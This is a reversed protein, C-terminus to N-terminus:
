SALPRGTSDLLAASQVRPWAASTALVKRAEAADGRAAAPAIESALVGTLAAQDHALDTRQAHWQEFIFLTSAALLVAVATVLSAIAIRNEFSIGKAGVSPGPSHDNISALAARGM